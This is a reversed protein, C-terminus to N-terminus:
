LYLDSPLSSYSGVSKALVVARVRGGRIHSVTQPTGIRTITYLHTATHTFSVPLTYIHHYIGEGHCNGLTEGLTQQFKLGPPVNPCM